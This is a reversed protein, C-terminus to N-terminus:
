EGESHKACLVLRASRSDVVRNTLHDEGLSRTQITWGRFEAKIADRVTNARDHALNMNFEEPGDASAFGFVYLTHMASGNDQLKYREKFVGVMKQVDETANKSEGPEFVVPGSVAVTKCIEKESALASALQRVLLEEGDFTSHTTPVPPSICLHEAGTSRDDSISRENYVCHVRTAPLAVVAGKFKTRNRYVLFEIRDSGDPGLRNWLFEMRGYVFEMWGWDTGEQCCDEARVAFVYSRNSGVRVFKGSTAEPPETVVVMVRKSEQCAVDARYQPDILVVYPLALIILAVLLLQFFTINAREIRRPLVSATWPIARVFVNLNPLPWNSTGVLILILQSLRVSRSYILLAFTSIWGFVFLIVWVSSISLLLAAVPVVFTLVFLSLCAVIIIGMMIAVIGLVFVILAGSAPDSHYPVINFNFRDYYAVDSFFVILTLIGSAIWRHRVPWSIKSRFEIFIKKTASLLTCSCTQASDSIISLGSKVIDRVDNLIFTSSIDLQNRLTKVQDNAAKEEEIATRMKDTLDRIEDQIGDEKENLTETTNPLSRSQRREARQLNRLADGLHGRARAWERHADQWAALGNKWLTRNKCMRVLLLVAVCHMVIFVAGTTAICSLIENSM